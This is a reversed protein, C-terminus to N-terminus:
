AHEERAKEQPSSLKRLEDSLYQITNAMELREKDLQQLQLIIEDLFGDVQELDYGLLTRRFSKQAINEATLM